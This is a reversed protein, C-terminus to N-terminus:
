KIKLFAEELREAILKHGAPTPHVGDVLWVDNGYKKGLTEFEEKLPVFSL